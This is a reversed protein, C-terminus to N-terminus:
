TIGLDRAAQTFSLSRAVLVFARLEAVTFPLGTM